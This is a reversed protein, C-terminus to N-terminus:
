NYQVIVAHLRSARPGCAPGRSMIASASLQKTMQYVTFSILLQPLRWCMSACLFCLVKGFSPSFSFFLVLFEWRSGRPCVGGGGGGGGPPLDPHPRCRGHVPPDGLSGAHRDAWLGECVCVPRGGRFRWLFGVKVRSGLSNPSKPHILSM